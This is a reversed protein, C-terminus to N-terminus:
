LLLDPPNYEDFFNRRRNFQGLKEGFRREVPTIDTTNDSNVTVRDPWLEKKLIRM